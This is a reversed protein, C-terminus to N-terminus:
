KRLNSRLGELENKEIKYEFSDPYNEEITKAIDIAEEINYDYLNEKALMYNVYFLLNLCVINDDESSNLKCAAQIKRQALNYDKKDILFKTYDIHIQIDDPSYELAKQYYSNAQEANNSVAYADAIKKYCGVAKASVKLVQEFFKISEAYDGGESKSKEFCIQGLYDLAVINKPNLTLVTEFLPRSNIYDGTKFFSIGLNVFGLDNGPEMEIAKQFKVKAEEFHGFENLAIGWSLLLYYNLKCEKEGLEYYKMCAEENKLNMFNEAALMYTENKKPFIAISKQAYDISQEYKKEKFALYSLYYFAEHHNPVISTILKFKSKAKELEGLELEVIGWFYLAMFNSQNFKCAEQFKERALLFKQQRILSIGWNLFIDSNNPSLKLAHTFKKEAQEYDKVETLTNGLFCFAKANNKDLRIAKIYFAKAAEFDKEKTKLIGLSIYAEPTQHAMLTSSVLKKEAEEINGTEALYSAWNVYAISPLSPNQGIKKYDNVEIDLKNIDNIINKLYKFSL